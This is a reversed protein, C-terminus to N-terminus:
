LAGIEVMRDIMGKSSRNEGAVWTPRGPLPINPRDQHFCGLRSFSKKTKAARSVGVFM